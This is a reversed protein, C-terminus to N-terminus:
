ACNNKISEFYGIPTIGVELLVSNYFNIPLNFFEPHDGWLNLQKKYMLKYKNGKGTEMRDLEAKVLSARLSNLENVLNIATQDIIYANKEKGNMWLQVDRSNFKINDGYKVRYFEIFQDPTFLGNRLCCLKFIANNM